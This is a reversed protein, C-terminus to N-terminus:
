GQVVTTKKKKKKENRLNKLPYQSLRYGYLKLFFTWFYDNQGYNTLDNNLIVNSNCNNM